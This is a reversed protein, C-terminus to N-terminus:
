RSTSPFASSVVVALSLFVPTSAKKPVFSAPANPSIVSFSTTLGGTRRLIPIGKEGGEEGAHTSAGADGCALRIERKCCDGGDEGVYAEDNWRFAEGGRDGDEEGRGEEIGVAAAGSFVLSFLFPSRACATERGKDDEEVCLAALGVEDPAEETVFGNSTSSPSSPSSARLALSDGFREAKPPMNPRRRSGM